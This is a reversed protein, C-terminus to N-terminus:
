ALISLTHMTCYLKEAVSANKGGIHKGGIEGGMIGGDKGSAGDLAVTMVMAVINRATAVVVEESAQVVLDMAIIMTTSVVELTGETMTTETPMITALNQLEVISASQSQHSCTETVLLANGIEQVSTAVEMVQLDGVTTESGVTEGTVVLTESEAMEGTVVTAAVRIEEETAAEQTQLSLLAVTSVPLSPLLCMKSVHHANGIVLGFTATAVVLTGVTEMIEMATFIVAVLDVEVV